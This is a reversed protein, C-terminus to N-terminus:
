DDWWGCRGGWREGISVLVEPFPSCQGEPEEGEEPPLNTSGGVATRWAQLSIGWGPRMLGLALDPVTSSLCNRLLQLSRVHLTSCLPHQLALSIVEPVLNSGLVARDLLVNNPSMLHM